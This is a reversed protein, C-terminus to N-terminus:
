VNEVTRSWVDVCFTSATTERTPYRGACIAREAVVISSVSFGPLRVDLSHVFDNSLMRNDIATIDDEVLNLVLVAVLPCISSTSSGVLSRNVVHLKEFGDCVVSTDVHGGYVVIWVQPTLRPGHVVIDVFNAAVSPYISNIIIGRAPTAIKLLASGGVRGSGVKSDKVVM